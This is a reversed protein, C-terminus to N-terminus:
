RREINADETEIEEEDESPPNEVELELRYSIPSDAQSVVTFEYFGTEPLTGSWTRRQSDELFRYSGTPSYISFQAEESTDLEFTASQGASLGAIYAQGEGPQLTGRVVEGTEGEPFVIRDLAEGSRVAQLKDVVVANWVQGIPQNVFTEGEQEPFRKFFEADALDYLSRSSLREQNVQRKVRDRMRQDYSGLGRRASPSLFELRDLWEGAMEQWRERWQDDEPNDTLVQGRQRPYAEWFASNVLDIYFGYDIGLELRRERLGQRRQQESSSLRSEIEPRDEEEFTVVEEEETDGQLQNDLWINGAMWGGVGAVGIGTVVILVKTLGGLWPNFGSPPPIIPVQTKQKSQPDVSGQAPSSAVAITAEHDIQPPTATPFNKLTKLVESASQPRSQPKPALMWDLVEGLEPSLVIEKRWRWTLTQGSIMTQPEKGTLLFLATAALAYLDSHSSVIGRQMQEPPAYGVKGLRTAPDQAQLGMFQSNVTAAVQKVGGFDILVPLQNSTCILNSPSIDRHIVGRGHIYDLVPLVQELLQKVEGETFCEGKQLRAQLLTRYTQGEVYDQVLFLRGKGEYTVRFLERFEPIQPHKLQYLVGAEREFLEEAKQLAYTGGLQPAFEKLVCYENFRNQDQALYTRGFGGQGLERVLRYRNSLITAGPIPHTM